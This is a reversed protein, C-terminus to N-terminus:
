ISGDTLVFLRSMDIFIVSIVAESGSAVRSYPTTELSILVFLAFPNTSRSTWTMLTSLIFTIFPGAGQVKGGRFPITVAALRAAHICICVSEHGGPKLKCERHLQRISPWGPFHFIQGGGGGGGGARAISVTLAAVSPLPFLSRPLSDPRPSSSRAERSLHKGGEGTQDM